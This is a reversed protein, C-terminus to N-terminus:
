IFDIQFLCSVWSHIFHTCLIYVKDCVLCTVHVLFGKSLDLFTNSANAAYLVHTLNGTSDLGM